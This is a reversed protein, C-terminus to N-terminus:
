ANEQAVANELNKFMARRRARASHPLKDLTSTDIGDLIGPEHAAWVNKMEDWCGHYVLAQAFAFIQDGPGFSAPLKKWNCGTRLKTLIGNVASRAGLQREGKGTPKLTRPDIFKHVRRWQRDTLFFTEAEAQELAIVEPRTAVRRTAWYNVTRPRNKVSDLDLDAAWQPDRQGLVDVLAELGGAAVFRNMANVVQRPPGFFAPPTSFPIAERIKFLLAHVIQRTGIDRAQDNQTRRLDPLIPEVAAWQEDTLAHVGAAAMESMSEQLPQNKNRTEVFIETRLTELPRSTSQGVSLLIAEWQVDIEIALVGKPLGVRLLRFNKVIHRILEVLRGQDDDDAKPIFPLSGGLHDLAAKLDVTNDTAVVDTDTQNFEELKQTIAAIEAKVERSRQIIASQDNDSVLQLDLLRLSRKQCEALKALLIQRTNDKKELDQDLHQKLSHLFAKDDLKSRLVPAFMEFVAKDIQEATFSQQAKSLCSLRKKQLNCAYRPAGGQRGISFTQGEAGLCDCSPKGFLAAKDSNIPTAHSAGLNTRRAELANQAAMWEDDSVIVLDGNYGEQFEEPGKHRRYEIRGAYLPNTVIARVTSGNWNVSGSPTLEGDETLRRAVEALSHKVVLEFIRKVTLATKEKDVTPFGRKFTRLYGFCVGWPVGDRAVLLDLGEMCIITRATWDEEAEAAAKAVDSKTLQRGTTACHLRVGAKFLRQASNISEFIERGLRNFREVVVDTIEGREAAQLMDELADRGVITAGSRAEDAFLIPTVEHGEALTAYRKSKNQQRDTSYVKQGDTSYRSYTAWIRTTSKFIAKLSSPVNLRRLLLFGDLETPSRRKQGAPFVANEELEFVATTDRTKM